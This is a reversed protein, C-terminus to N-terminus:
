HMGARAQDRKGRVPEIEKAMGERSIQRDAIAALDGLEHILLQYLDDATIIGLIKGDDGVVPLRRVSKERMLNTAKYIGDKGNMTQPNRTMVSDVRKKALSGGDTAALLIDRDTIIGMLGVPEDTERGVVLLDGVHKEKMLRAADLLSANPEITVLNERCLDSLPM